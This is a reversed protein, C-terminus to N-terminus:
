AGHQRRPRRRQRSVLSHSPRHAGPERRARDIHTRVRQGHELPVLIDTSRQGGSIPLNDTPRRRDLVITRRTTRTSAM